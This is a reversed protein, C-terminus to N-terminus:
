LATEPELLRKLSNLASAARTSIEKGNPEPMSAIVRRIQMDGVLLNLYLEVADETNDFSLDKNTRAAEFLQGIMPAITQRGAQSIATGLDGTPDAAAARNLTIAKAGVLMALLKPGLTGLTELPTEDRAPDSELLEKVELANIKVLSRFLGLKDGYWNYLTENSARARKAISLMSAGTYGKEELIAYAANEIQRQRAKRNEGRM